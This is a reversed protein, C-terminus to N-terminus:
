PSRILLATALDMAGAVLHSAGSDGDMDGDGEEEAKPCDTGDEATTWKGGYIADCQTKGAAPKCECDPQAQMFDEATATGDGM